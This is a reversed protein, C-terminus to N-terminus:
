SHSIIKSIFSIAKVPTKGFILSSAAYFLKTDASYQRVAELFNVYSLVNTRYSNIILEIENEIKDESSHHYAALYYIDHPQVSKVLNAVENFRSISITNEWNNKTSINYNIDIGIVSYGNNVLHNFLLQGDQGKVGVIIASKM